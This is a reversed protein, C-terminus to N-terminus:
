RMILTAKIARPFESYAGSRVPSRGSASTRSLQQGQGLRPSLKCGLRPFSDNPPRPGGDHTAHPALSGLGVSM